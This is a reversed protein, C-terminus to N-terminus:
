PSDGEQSPQAPENANATPAVRRVTVLETAPRLEGDLDIDTWQVQFTDEDIPKLVQTASAARGDALTGTWHIAWHDEQPTWTGEAWTGISTFVWTRIEDRRADWAIYQTGEQPGNETTLSYTRVLMRGDAAWAFTSQTSTASAEDAWDGVLWALDTLPDPDTEEAALILWRDEKRELEALFAGATKNGSGDDTETTGRVRASSDGDLQLETITAVLKLQPQEKFIAEYRAQIESRGNLQLGDAPDVYVADESWGAAVAAADHRNVAEVLAALAKRVAAADDSDVALSSGIGCALALSVALLSLSRALTRTM